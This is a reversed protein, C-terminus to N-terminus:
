CLIGSGCCWFVFHVMKVYLYFHCKSCPVSRFTTWGCISVSFFNGTGISNYPNGVFIYLISLGFKQILYLISRVKTNSIFLSYRCYPIITISSVHILTYSFTTLISFFFIKVSFILIHFSHPMYRRMRIVRYELCQLFYVGSISAYV